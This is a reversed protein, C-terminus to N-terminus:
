VYYVYVYRCNKEIRLYHLLSDPLGFMYPTDSTRTPPQLQRTLFRSFSVLLFAANLSLSGLFDTPHIFFMYLRVVNYCLYVYLCIYLCVLCNKKKCVYVSIVTVPVIKKEFMIEVYLCKIIKLYLRNM